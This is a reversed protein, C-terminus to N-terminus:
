QKISNLLTDKELIKDYKEKRIEKSSIDVKVRKLFEKFDPNMSLKNVTNWDLLEKTKAPLLIESSDPDEINLKIIGIGFSTSLRKLEDFFDEDNAINAAVLYGENAWSSNSVTQFFSERLNSFTLERKIEFSFIKISIIGISSCFEIVESKWEDLPFYCGVMDPHVWEGYEKKDSKSHQLTKSYCKLYYFAFYALFPHLDKELFFQKPAVLGSSEEVLKIVDNVVNKLAKLYFRKPRTDTKAFISNKKDRVNIYLQAALTAWPTKGQTNLLQDYGKLKGFSWIEDTTLPRKEEDLIRKAFDLFTMTEM